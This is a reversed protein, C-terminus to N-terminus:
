DTRYSHKLEKIFRTAQEWWLRLIFHPETLFLLFNFLSKLRQTRKFSPFPGRWKNLKLHCSPERDVLHLPTAALRLSVSKYHHQFWICDQRFSPNFYEGDELHHVNMNEPLAARHKLCFFGNHKRQTKQSDTPQSGLLCRIVAQSRYGWIEGRMQDGMNM